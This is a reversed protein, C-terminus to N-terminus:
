RSGNKLWTEPAKAVRFVTYDPVKPTM